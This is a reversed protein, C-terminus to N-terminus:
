PYVREVKGTDLDLAEARSMRQEGTFPDISDPSGALYLLRGRDDFGLLSRSPGHKRPGGPIPLSRSSGNAAIVLLKEDLTRPGQWREESSERTPKERWAWLLVEESHARVFLSVLTGEVAPGFPALQPEGRHWRMLIFQESLTRAHRQKDRKAVMVYLTSGDSSWALDRPAERHSATGVAERWLVQSTGTRADVLRVLNVSSTVRGGPEHEEVVERMAVFRGDPSIGAADFWRGAKLAGPEPAWVVETSGDPQARCLAGDGDLGYIVDEVPSWSPSGLIIPRGEVPSADNRVIDIAGV